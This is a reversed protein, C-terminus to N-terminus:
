AVGACTPVQWLAGTTFGDLDDVDLDTNDQHKLLYAVNAFYPVASEYASRELHIEAINNLLGLDLLKSASRKRQKRLGLAIEYGNLATKLHQSDKLAQIHFGLSVNFIIASAIDGALAKCDELEMKELMQIPRKFM